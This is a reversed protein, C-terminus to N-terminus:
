DRVPAFPTGGTLPIRLQGGHTHGSLMLDWRYDRLYTKSDPNHSLLVTPLDSALGDFAVPDIDRAWLDGVGVLALPRDRVGLVTHRNHLFSVGADDLLARLPGLTPLGGRRAVWTGGDHNGAIAFTPAADQLRRLQAVYADRDLISRSFFDGTLCILDPNAELALDVARAVASSGIEEEHFDSLHLLRIPDRLHPLAVAKTTSQIWFPEVFRMYGGALGGALALGGLGQAARRVFTRRDM